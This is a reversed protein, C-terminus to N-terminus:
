NLLEKKEWIDVPKKFNKIWKDYCEECLIIKHIEGDKNSFYGWEVSIEAIGQTINGNKIDHKIEKGCMNCFIKERKIKM